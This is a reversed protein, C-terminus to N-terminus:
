YVGYFPTHDARAHQYFLVLGQTEPYMKSKRNRHTPRDVVLQQAM